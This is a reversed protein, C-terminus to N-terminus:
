IAGDTGGVILLRQGNVDAVVPMAYNTDYHRTQPSAIWVSKGTRKDFAFYRNGGRAWPGWAAMLANLILLDGEIIPTTTRGGHATVVGYEEVLLGQWILKGQPSLALLKGAVGLAYINGTDPDAVPSAWGVRHPPVDSLGVSFRYEWLVKGTA